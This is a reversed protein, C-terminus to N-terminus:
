VAAHGKQFISRPTRHFDGADLFAKCTKMFAVFHFRCSWAAGGTSNVTQLFSGARISENLRRQIPQMDYDAASITLNIAVHQAGGVDYTVSPSPALLRRRGSSVPGQLM